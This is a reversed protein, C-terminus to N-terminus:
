NSYSLKLLEEEYKKIINQHKRILAKVKTIRNSKDKRRRYNPDNHYLWRMREADYLNMQRM